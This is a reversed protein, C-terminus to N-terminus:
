LHKRARFAGYVTTVAIIILVINRVLAAMQVPSDPTWPSSVLDVKIGLNNTLWKRAELDKYFLAMIGFNATDAVVLLPLYKAELALVAIPTIMLIMQPSFVYNLATVIVMSTMAIGMIQRYNTYNVDLALLLLFAIYISVMAYIRNYPSWIDWTFISYICNECYWQSHHELFYLFGNYSFALIAFYPALGTISIGLVMEILHKIHLEGRRCKQVMDYVIISALVIPLLKTSIALGMMIGSALYRRVMMYYIAAVIFAATIVDWNYITYLITSPLILFLAVRWWSIGALKSIRFMYITLVMLFVILVASHINYHMEMVVRSLEIYRSITYSEPLLLYISTCVSGIWLLGVIPPYEFKYDRYPLPCVRRATSLEIALESNFWRREIAQRQPTSGYGVIDRFIPNFLGYVIDSYSLGPNDLPSPRNPAHLYYSYSATLVSLMVIILLPLVEKLSEFQHEM